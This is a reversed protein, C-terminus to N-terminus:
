PADERSGAAENGEEFGREYGAEDAAAVCKECPEIVVSAGNRGYSVETQRCLGEGCSCWVEFDFQPM